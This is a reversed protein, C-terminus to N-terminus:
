KVEKEDEIYFTFLKFIHVNRVLKLKNKTNYVLSLLIM